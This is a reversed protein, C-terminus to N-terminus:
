RLDPGPPTAMVAEPAALVVRSAPLGLRDLVAASIVHRRQGGAIAYVSLTAADRVLAGDRFGLLPGAPLAAFSASTSRVPRAAVAVTWSAAASTSVPRRRGGEVRWVTGDETRWLTEDPYPAAPGVLPGLPLVGASAASLVALREPRVGTLLVAAGSVPRLLGGSVAYVGGRAGRVYTGAGYSLRAPGLQALRRASVPQPRLRLSGLVAGPVALRSRGVVLWHSGGVKLLAGSPPPSVAALAPGPPNARVEAPRVPRIAGPHYGLGTLVARSPLRRRRGEAVVWAKGDDITRLLTGDPFGLVPGPRYRTIAAVGSGALAPATRARWTPAAAPLVPRALGDEVRWLRDGSAALTGDPWPDGAGLPAGVPLRALDADRAARVASPQYGHATFSAADTVARRQGDAVAWVAGSAERALAGDPLGALPQTLGRLAARTRPRVAPGPGADAAAEGPGAYTWVAGGLVRRPPSGAVRTGDPLPPVAAVPGRVALGVTLPRAPVGGATATVTLAARGAPAADGVADRGNWVIRASRGSGSWRRLVRGDAAAVWASWRVDQSFRPAVTVASAALPDVAGASPAGGYIKPLGTRGVAARLGPLMGYAADGPCSTYSTDRHGSITRLRVRTGKKYKSTGGGSSTLVTTSLPDVHTLDLKWALLGTVAAVMPGPPRAATFTGLMAVCSTGTNFGANCAGVVPQDVGGYRGEFVQGFRDVLFNYGIDDWGRTKVHYLYDARVLAASEAKSYTNAQVTHHVFAAHVSSAYRPRGHRLREDAGWSARTIIPPQRTMAVAGGPGAETGPAPALDPAVLHAALREVSAPAGRPLEVRVQLAGTGAPLWVGETFVRDPRPQPDAPDPEHDDPEMPQWSSWVGAASRSRLWTRASGPRAWPGDPRRAWSLGALRAPGAGVPDSLWAGPRGRAGRLALPTRAALRGTGTGSAFSLPIDRVAGAGTTRPRQVALDPVAVVTLALVVSLGALALRRHRAPDPTSRHM